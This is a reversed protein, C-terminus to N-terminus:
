PQGREWRQGGDGSWSERAINVTSEAGIATEWGRELFGMCYGRNARSRNSDEM